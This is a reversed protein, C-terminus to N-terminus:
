IYTHTHKDGTEAAHRRPRVSHRAAPGLGAASRLERQVSRQHGAERVDARAEGRERQFVTADVTVRNM